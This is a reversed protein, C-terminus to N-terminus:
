ASKMCILGKIHALINKLTEKLIIMVNDAALEDNDDKTPIQRLFNRKLFRLNESIRAYCSSLYIIVM